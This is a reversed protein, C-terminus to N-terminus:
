RTLVLLTAILCSGSPCGGLGVRSGGGRAQPVKFFAPLRFANELTLFTDLCFHMKPGMDRGSWCRVGRGPTSFDFEPCGQNRKKGEGAPRFAVAATPREDLAAATAAGAPDGCPLHANYTAFVQDGSPPPPTRHHVGLADSLPLSRPRHIGEGSLGISPLAPGIFLARRRLRCNAAPAGASCEPPVGRM